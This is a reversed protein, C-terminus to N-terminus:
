ASSHTGQGVLNRAPAGKRNNRVGIGALGGQDLFQQQKAPRDLQRALYSSGFNGRSKGFAATALNRSSTSTAHPRRGSINNVMPSTAFDNPYISPACSWSAPHPESCFRPRNRM